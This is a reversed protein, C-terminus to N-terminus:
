TDSSTQDTNVVPLGTAFFDMVTAFIQPKLVKWEIDDDARSVTIFDPGFFVASVGEIQFLQRALPSKSAEKVNPADFTGSELVPIGPIFKLSNPNPTEQTQIFLSRKIHYRRLNEFANEKLLCRKFSCASHIKQSQSMLFFLNKNPVLFRKILSAM